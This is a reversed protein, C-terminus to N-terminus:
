VACKRVDRVLPAVYHISTYLELRSGEEANRIDVLLATGGLNNAITLSSGGGQLPRVSSPVTVFTDDWRAIICAAVIEQRHPSAIVEDPQGKRLSGVTACGGMLVMGSLTAALRLSRKGCIM